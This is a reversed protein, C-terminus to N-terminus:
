WIFLFNLMVINLHSFQSSQLQSSSQIHQLYTVTVYFFVFLLGGVEFDTQNFCASIYM